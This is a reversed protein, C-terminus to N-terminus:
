SKAVRHVTALLLWAGRHMPNELCPHGHGGGPSRGLGPISAADGAAEANCASAKGSLWQLLGVQYVCAPLYLPPLTSEPALATTKQVTKKKKKEFSM